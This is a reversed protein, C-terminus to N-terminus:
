EGNDDEIVNSWADVNLHEAGPMAFSGIFDRDEHIARGLPREQPGVAAGPLRDWGGGVIQESTRGILREFEVNAYVVRETPALESVAIAVPVQDLFQKFHESELAVALDPTELFHEVGSLADDSSM